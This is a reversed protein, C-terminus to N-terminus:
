YKNTLNTKNKDFNMNSIRMLNASDTKTIEETTVGFTEAFNKVFVPVVDPITLLKGTEQSLSTVSYGELGCPVIHDFWKLDTSCNLGIGHSVIYRRCNIGIAAIKARKVWIGTHETRGAVVGFDKCTRILVEELQCVYWRVSPRLHQLNLIPYAVLQGPGHFTILGGRNTHFLQAGKQRLLEEDVQTYENRRIGVTYVPDHEVLLLIDQTASQPAHEATAKLHRSVLTEQLALATKYDCRGLNWYQLIKRSNM